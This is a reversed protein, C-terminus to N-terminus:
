ILKKLPLKLPWFLESSFSVFASRTMETVCSGLLLDKKGLEDFNMMSQNHLIQIWQEM